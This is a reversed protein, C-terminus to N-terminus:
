QMSWSLGLSFTRGLSYLEQTYNKGKFEHSKEYKADLINKASFKIQLGDTIRQSLNFDLMGRPQEFANPTGGLSVEALRKGWINYVVTATTGWYEHDYSADINLVYPSQGQLERKGDAYPNVALIDEMDVDSITVESAVLSLNAGVSFGELNEHFKGLRQRAELEAGIVRAEGVNQYQIEGNDTLNVREIPNSFIKYFFSAAIVEGANPFWEWRFDFNDILTRKLEANGTFTYSNAFEYASYPAMERLTPRALTRGYSWRLNMDDRLLYILNLAPLLDTEKIEGSRLSDPLTMDKTAVTMDTNEVRLGTILQWKRTIPLEIMAYGAAVTQDGEYSGRPHTYDRVFNAFRNLRGTTDVLGVYDEAFFTYPDGTYPYNRVDSRDFNYQRESFTRDSTSYYGGFKFMSFLGNWQHFPIDLDLKGNINDEELNRYYRAPVSYKSPTIVGSSDQYNDGTINITNSFFRLDPEDQTSNSYSSNWKLLAGQGLVPLDHQGKLQYSELRREVYRLVRTEWFSPAIIDRGLTGKLYRAESEGSQNLMINMSIEQGEVPQYAVTTMGGLLVEDTGKQENLNFDGSLDDTNDVHGPLVWRAQIGDGYYSYKRGYTFSGMMGLQQGGELDWKNGVSVSYSQNTPPADSIPGMINNFSRSIDSLLLAAQRDTYAETIDPIVMNPDDLIAPPDRFGDDMGLWDTKGGQYTLFEDNFTANTNYSMSGSVSLSFEEPFTRTVIEVNGGSFSGPKDPSFTKTTVIKDLFGSPFLDMHVAKRDPDASPIESGNLSASSYRDGLGRIYVYKGDVISAGTVKEVAEAADGAGQREMAEKGIADQIETAQQREQLLQDDKKEEDVISEVVLEDLQLIQTEMAVDVRATQGAIVTVKKEASTYGVREIVLTYDGPPVLDILFRGDDGSVKGLTTNKLYVSASVVPQGNETATVTGGVQGTNGAQAILNGALLGVACVLVLLQKYM